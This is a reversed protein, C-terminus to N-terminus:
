GIEPAWRRRGFDLVRGDACAVGDDALDAAQQEPGYGSALGGASNVVRQWPLGPTGQHAIMGVMRAAGPHGVCAAIDGYTMVRGPPIDSVLAEVQERM